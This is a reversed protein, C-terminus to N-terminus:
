GWIGFELLAGEDFQLTVFHPHKTLSGYGGNKKGPLRTSWVTISDEEEDVEFEVNQETLLEIWKEKDTM